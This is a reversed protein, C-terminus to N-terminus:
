NQELGSRGVVRVDKFDVDVAIAIRGRDVDELDDVVQIAAGARSPSDAVLTGLRPVFVGNRSDICRHRVNIPEVIGSRFRITTSPCRRETLSRLSM